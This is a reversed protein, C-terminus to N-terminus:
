FLFNSCYKQLVRFLNCCLKRQNLLLFHSSSSNVLNLKTNENKRPFFSLGFTFKSEEDFCSLFSFVKESFTVLDGKQSPEKVYSNLKVATLQKMNLSRTKWKWMSLISKKKLSLSCFFFRETESTHIYYKQVINSQSQCQFIVTVHHLPEQFHKLFLYMEQQVM